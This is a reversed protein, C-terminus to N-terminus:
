KVKRFEASERRLPKKKHEFFREDFVIALNIGLSLMEGAKEYKRLWIV